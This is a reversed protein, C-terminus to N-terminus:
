LNTMCYKLFLGIDVEHFEAIGLTEEHFVELLTMDVEHFKDILVKSSEHDMHDLYKMGKFILLMDNVSYKELLM